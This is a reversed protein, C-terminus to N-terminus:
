QLVNISDSKGCAQGSTKHWRSHAGEGEQCGPDEDEGETDNDLATAQALGSQWEREAFMVVGRMGGDTVCM